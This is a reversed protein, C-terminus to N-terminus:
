CICSPMTAEAETGDFLEYELHLGVAMNIPHPERVVQILSSDLSDYTLSCVEKIHERLLVRELLHDPLHPRDRM